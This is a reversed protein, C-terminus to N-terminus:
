DFDLPVQALSELGVGLLFESWTIALNPQNHYARALGTLADYWIGYRAYVEVQELQNRAGELERTLEPSPVIRKLMGTIPLENGSECAIVLYWRLNVGLPIAKSLGVPVIGPASPLSIAIREFTEGRQHQQTEEEYQVEFVAEKVERSSYPIYFWVTPYERLTQTYGPNGGLALLPLESTQRQQCGRSGAANKGSITGRDGPRTPPVYRIKKINSYNQALTRDGSTLGNIGLIIGLGLAVLKKGNM